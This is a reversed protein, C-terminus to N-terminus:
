RRKLRCNKYRNVPNLIPPMASPAAEPVLLQRCTLRSAKISPRKSQKLFYYAVNVFLDRPLIGRIKDFGLHRLGDRIITACSKTFVSFGTYEGPRRPDAPTNKIEALVDYFFGSLRAADLGTLRLVHITRMFLRGFKDYYPKGPDDVNDRGTEPHPAFEGLAPRYFYEEPRMAENENLKHSFNFIAGNVNVAMHGLFSAPYKVLRENFYLDAFPEPAAPEDPWVIIIPRGTEYDKQPLRRASVSLGRFHTLYGSWIKEGELYRAGDAGALFATKGSVTLVGQYLSEEMDTNYM